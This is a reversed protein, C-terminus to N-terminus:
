FQRKSANKNIKPVFTLIGKKAFYDKILRDYFQIM